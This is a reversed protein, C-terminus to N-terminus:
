GVCEGFDNHFSTDLHRGKINVAGFSDGHFSEALVLLEAGLIAGLIPGDLSKELVGDVFVMGSVEAKKSPAIKEELGAEGKSGFVGVEAVISLLPVGIDEM